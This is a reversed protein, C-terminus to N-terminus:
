KKCYIIPIANVERVAHAFSSLIWFLQTINGKIKKGDGNKLKNFEEKIKSKSLFSCNLICQRLLKDDKLLTKIDNGLNSVNGRRVRNIKTPGDKSKYTMANSKTPGFKYLIEKQTFYLNGLNKIGQGVVEQLKTASNSIKEEFKSHIFSIRLDTKNITIHDAWENGLDDCFIYDDDKHIKEVAFFMSKNDFNKRNRAIDKESTVNAIEKKYSLMKLINDIEAKGSVDEFVMGNFYMYKPDTFTISYLGNKIIFRQLSLIDGEGDVRIESLMDSRFTLTKKNEIIEIFPKEGMSIKQDVEHIKDLQSSLEKSLEASILEYKKNKSKMLKLDSSMIKDHLSSSDILIANPKCNKLVDKLNVIKAFSDLFSNKSSRKLKKQKKILDIQEKVWDVIEDLSKRESSEVLRGTSSIAKVRPGQRMQLYFPIARGASHTSLLGKLDFAEYSRTRIANNSITMNKLSIKQFNTKEEDIMRFLSNSNISEFYKELEESINACNKKFVTLYNDYEIILIFAYIQDKLNDNKLFYVPRSSSFIRLSFRYPINSKTHRKKRLINIKFKTGVTKNKTAVYLIRQIVSKTIEEKPSYFRTNKTLILNKLMIKVIGAIKLLYVILLLFFM